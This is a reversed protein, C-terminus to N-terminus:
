PQPTGYRRNLEATRSLTKGLQCALLATGLGSGSGMESAVLNGCDADRFQLWAKQSLKLRQRWARGADDDAISRMAHGYSDNLSTDAVDQARELCAAIGPSIVDACATDLKAEGDAYVKALAQVAADGHRTLCSGPDDGGCQENSAATTPAATTPAALAARPIADTLALVGSVLALMLALTKM